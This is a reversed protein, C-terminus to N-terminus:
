TYQNFIHTSNTVPAGVNVEFAEDFIDSEVWFNQCTQKCNLGLQKFFEVRRPFLKKEKM